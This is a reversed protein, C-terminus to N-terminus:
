QLRVGVLGNVRIHLEWGIRADIGVTFRDGILGRIGGGATFAGESSTFTGGFFEERTQFLGGGIVVFPTVPRPRGNEPARLDVTVNGTVTLHSHRNGIVYIVEPGVSIRPLPYWRAAAGVMSENVIGDDAFGMWGLGVEVAPAPTEQATAPLATSVAVLTTAGVFARVLRRCRHANM